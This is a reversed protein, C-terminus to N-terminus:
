IQILPEQIYRMEYGEDSMHPSSLYIKNNTSVEVQVTMEGDGRTKPV